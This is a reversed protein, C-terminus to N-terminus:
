LLVLSVTQKWHKKLALQCEKVCEVQFEKELTQVIAADVLTNYHNALNIICTSGSLASLLSPVLNTKHKLLFVTTVCTFLSVIGLRASVKEFVPSTKFFICCRYVFLLLYISFVNVCTYYVTLKEVRKRNRKYEENLFYLNHWILIKAAQCM